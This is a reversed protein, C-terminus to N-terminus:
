FTTPRKAVFTSGKAAGAIRHPLPFRLHPALLQKIYPRRVASANPLTTVRLIHISRFRARHRAAMDQYLAKVADARTLERFEKYMNHTGSRSDYRLWIGFNKPKLPRPETIVNVGIVEGNAKKVKKLQRLFYWFRSKAVVENPAFIRMRYIKPTPESATPLHRGVVQYEQLM